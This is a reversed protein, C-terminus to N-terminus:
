RGEVVHRAVRVGFSPLPCKQTLDEGSLVDVLLTGPAVSPAVVVPEPDLSVFWSYRTGDEHELQDMYTRSGVVQVEPVIGAEAALAGYLRYVQDDENANRRTAGFFEVPFSGLYILGAGIRRRILAARGSRDVAVVEADVVELPLHSRAYEGGAAAFELTEGKGIGGLAVQFTLTVVDDTREAIGYRLRHRAGFIPEIDPWWAGRQSMSSGAFWSVYVHAGEKARDLLAPFTSGLLAKNSPVILLDAHPIGESERVIAPKLGALKAAVSAHWTIDSMLERDQLHSKDVIPLDLDIHAPFLVATRTETRSLRAFDVARLIKGFEELELLAQKPTGDVKTVGFTLEYLHSNYPEVDAMDFDTNNWGIWGTAGALLSTHLTQRYYDAASQEGAFTDTVGFEELIVPKGLHSMECIFAARQLQRTQDTGMPYSHPGFFDTTDQQDRLRFGNDTGIVEQAWVGDGLSVPLQSGGARVAQTCIIAWARASARDTPGTYWPMENSILWAAIAPSSGVRRVMERIFYAQQGLMFGDRYLDRGDRWVPDWNSGSMHGVIFTPITAIGVEESAVLFQRYRDVMQEDIVDPAPHFDPWLFFSRTVTMGHDVLVQLEERVLRDDYTRWMFPGGKRSWFNLGLWPTPTDLRLNPRQVM